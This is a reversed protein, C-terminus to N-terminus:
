LRLEGVFTAGTTDTLRVEHYTGVLEPSAVFAVVKNRRSRGLIQGPDRAEKEVLVEEVRQIKSGFRVARNDERSRETKGSRRVTSLCPKLAPLPSNQNSLPLGIGYQEPTSSLWIRTLVQM